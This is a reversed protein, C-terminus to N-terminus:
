GHFFHGPFFLLLKHDIQYLIVRDGGTDGGCITAVATVSRIM